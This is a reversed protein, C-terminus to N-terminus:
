ATVETEAIDAAAKRIEPWANLATAFDSWMHRWFEILEAGDMSDPLGKVVFDERSTQDMVINLQRIGNRLYNQWDVPASEAASLLDSLQQLTESDHQLRSDRYMDTLNKESAGALDDFWASLASLRDVPSNSQCTSKLEIVKEFFFMPFSASPTFDLDKNLWERDPIPLHPVAWPYDLTVASPFIFDLMSGFLRDQGRMIPLYPPLMQGNDLGTIQSMNPRPAFHPQNRGSWVKRKTLAFTTKTQSTLMQKLSGPAMYPLWTNNATGPCGLSGCETMLVPSGPHLESVQLPTANELGAPKLNNEGLRNLAESLSLGLCQMHRNVPDPNIPQHLFAWDQEGGFFDADRPKDSITIGPRPEPPNYVDCVADDDMVVLRHGCSLFLALNRSLGATWHDEWRSHDILFRIANEHEPLREILRTILERQEERGFYRLSTGIQSTFKEVLLRNQKINEAKRSDDIVYLCHFNKSNCNKVISLLLRELAQPREWSIIAVVPRTPEKDEVPAETQLKLEDSIEKASVMIGADLMQQLVARINTQQGQMGPNGEIINAVHKDLPQFKNCIALSAYVEPKVVARRNNRINQLLLNGGPLRYARCLDFAVWDPLKKLGSAPDVSMGLSFGTKKNM